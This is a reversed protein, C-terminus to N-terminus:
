SQVNGTQPSPIQFAPHTLPLRLSAHSSPFMKLPSPHLEVQSMSSNQPFPVTSGPSVQILQEVSITHVLPVCHQASPLQWTEHPPPPCHPSPTTSSPSSHSDFLSQEEPSYQEEPQWHAPTTTSHPLPTTSSPSSHSLALSQLIPSDQTPQEHVCPVEMQPLSRMSGPSSHSSVESQVFLLNQPFEQWHSGTGAEQPLVMMSAGFSCHSSPPIQLPPVALPLMTVLTCSATSHTRRPPETM